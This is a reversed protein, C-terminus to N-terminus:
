KSDLIDKIQRIQQELSKIQLEKHELDKKIDKLKAFLDFMLGNVRESRTNQLTRLADLNRDVKKEFDVLFVAISIINRSMVYFFRVILCAIVTKLAIFSVHWIDIM